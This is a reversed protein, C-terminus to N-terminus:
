QARHHSTFLVWEVRKVGIEALHGLVSADGLDILLAADGDRLVYVNCTDSWAFLDPFGDTAFSKWHGPIIASDGAPLDASKSQALCTWLMLMVFKLSNTTLRM